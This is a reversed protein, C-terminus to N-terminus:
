GRTVPERDAHPDHRVQVIWLRTYRILITWTIPPEGDHSRALVSHDCMRLKALEAVRSVLDLVEGGPTPEM